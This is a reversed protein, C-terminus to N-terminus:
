EPSRETEVPEDGGLQSTDMVAVASSPHRVEGAGTHLLRSSTLFADKEERSQLV